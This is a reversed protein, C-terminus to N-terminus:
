FLQSEQLSIPSFRANETFDGVAGGPIHALGSKEKDTAGEISSFDLESNFNTGPVMPPRPSGLFPDSVSPTGRLGIAHSKQGIACDTSGETGAPFIQTPTTEVGSGDTVSPPVRPGCPDSKLPADEGLSSHKARPSIKAVLGM